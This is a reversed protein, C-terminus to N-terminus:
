VATCRHAYVVLVGSPSTNVWIQGCSVDSVVAVGGDCGDDDNGGGGGGGVVRM